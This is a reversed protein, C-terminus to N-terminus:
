FIDLKNLHKHLNRDRSKLGLKKRISIRQLRVTDPSKDLIFAIEDTTKGLRILRAVELEKETLNLSRSLDPADEDATSHNLEKLLLRCLNEVLEPNNKAELIQHLGKTIKTTAESVVQQCARIREEEAHRLLTNLAMNKEQLERTRLTLREQMRKTETVDRSLGVTGYPRGKEDKLVAFVHNAIGTHADSRTFWYEGKWVDGDRFITQAEQQLQEGLKDSTLLFVPKGVIEEKKYGFMRESAPNWDIINGELNTVIISEEM